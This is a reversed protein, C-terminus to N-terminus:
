PPLPLPTIFRPHTYGGSRYSGFCPFVEPSRRLLLRQQLRTGQSPAPPRHAACRLHVIALRCVAPIHESQPCFVHENSLAASNPRKNKNVKVRFTRQRSSQLPPCVAASRRRSVRIPSSGTVRQFYGPSWKAGTWKPSPGLAPACCCIDAAELQKPIDQEHYRPSLTALPAVAPEEGWGERGREADGELIFIHIPPHARPDRPPLHLLM